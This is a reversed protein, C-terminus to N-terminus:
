WEVPERARTLARDLEDKVQHLTLARIAAEVEETSRARALYGTEVHGTPEEGAPSWRVFLLAGGFSGDPGCEEDVYIAVSYAEGDLGEFAPPREHIRFYGGLTADEVDGTM